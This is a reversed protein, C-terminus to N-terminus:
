WSTEIEEDLEELNYNTSDSQPQNSKKHKVITTAMDVALVAYITVFTVALIKLAIM